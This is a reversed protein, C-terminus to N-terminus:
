CQQLKGVRYSKLGISANEIDIKKVVGLIFSPLVGIKMGRRLVIRVMMIGCLPYLFDFCISPNQCFVVSFSASTQQACHSICQSLTLCQYLLHRSDHHLFVNLSKGQNWPSILQLSWKGIIVCSQSGILSLPLQHHLSSLQNHVNM